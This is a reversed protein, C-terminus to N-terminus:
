SWSSILTKLSYTLTRGAVVYQITVTVERLGTQVDCFRIDRQYNVLPQDDSTGLRGDPGPESEMTTSHNATNVLGDAGPKYLGQFGNQFVGGGSTSGSCGSSPATVNRLEDWTIVRADRVAHISEIAERAKERAVLGASGAMLHNVALVYVQALGLVGVTVVGLAIMSEVLSFGRQDRSDQQTHEHQTM